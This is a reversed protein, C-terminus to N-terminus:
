AFLFFAELTEGKVDNLNNAAFLVGSLISWFITNAIVVINLISLCRIKKNCSVRQTTARIIFSLAWYKLAFMWHTLTYLCIAFSGMFTTIWVTTKIASM